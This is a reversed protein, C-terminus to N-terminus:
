YSAIPIIFNIPRKKDININASCITGGSLKMDPGKKTSWKYGSTTNNDLTLEVVVEIPASQGVLKYALEKNGILNVIGEISSPYEGVEVVRGILYGYEEKNVMSPSVHVEMGLEIEKGKEVPIYMLVELRRKTPDLSEVSALIQGPTLVDGAKVRMEVVQGDRESIITSAKYFVEKQVKIEEKFADIHINRRMILEAKLNSLEDQMELIKAQTPKREISNMQYYTLQDRLVKIRTIIPNLESYLDIGIAASEIEIVEDFAMLAELRKENVQIEEELDSRDIRAIRDGKKIFQGIEVDISSITGGYEHVVNELGGGPIIIGQGYIKLPIEGLFGWILVVLLILSIGLLSLWAKPSTVSIVQDLEEPSSLRDLAIKRFVNPM